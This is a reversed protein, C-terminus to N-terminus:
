EEISNELNDRFDNFADLSKFTRAVKGDEDILQIVLPTKLVQREVDKTIAPIFRETTRAPLKIRRRKEHKIIPPGKRWEVSAAKVLVRTKGDKKEYPVVTEVTRNAQTPLSGEEAENEAQIYEIEVTSGEINGQIWEYEAPVRFQMTSPEGTTVSDTYIEYTAPIVDYAVTEPKLVVTDTITEYTPAKYRVSYGAFKKPPKFRYIEFEGRNAFGRVINGRKDRLILTQPRALRKVEYEKVIAPITKESVRYSTAVVRRDVFKTVAPIDRKQITAAKVVIRTKGDKKEFPVLREIVKAPSKVTRRSLQETVAPITREVSPGATKSIRRPVMATVAPVISHDPALYSEQLIIPEQIIEVWTNVDLFEVSSPKVVIIEPVIEFETPIIEFETASGGVDGEVWEYEAPTTVFETSGEQVIYTEVVTKYNPKNQGYEVSAEEIVIKETKTEFEPPSIELSLGNVKLPLQLEPKEKAVQAIVPSLPLGALILALIFRKIM